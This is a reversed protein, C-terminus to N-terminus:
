MLALWRLAEEDDKMPGGALERLKANNLVNSVTLKRYASYWIQNRKQFTRTWRKFPAESSAGGLVLFSTKPFWKTNTWIATLFVHAKDIFDGLYSEWSGDYNSFFVLTGDDLLTWRAFHITVIGGLAGEYCVKKRAQEVFWLVFLAAARRFRGRKLPVVHTLGNIPQLDEAEELANEVPDQDGVLQPPAAAEEREDAPEFVLRAIAAFVLAVAVIGPITVYLSLKAWPGRPLGRDVAGLDLKEQALHAKLALATERPTKSRLTGTADADDLWRQIATRVQDDHLIQAVSLGGHAVYYAKPAISHALAFSEFSGPSYGECHGFFADLDAGICTRLEALHRGLDGDYNSEFSLLHKGGADDFVVFRGFHLTTVQALRALVGLNSAELLTGLDDEAGARVNAIVTLAHQV